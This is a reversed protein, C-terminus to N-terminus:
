RVILAVAVGAVAATEVISLAAMIWFNRIMLRRYEDDTM